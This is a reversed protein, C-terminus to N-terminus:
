IVANIELEEENKETTTLTLGAQEPTGADLSSLLVDKEGGEVSEPKQKGKSAKYKLALTAAMKDVKVPVLVSGTLVTTVGNCVYEMVPGTGGAPRLDLAVKKAPKDQFGLDGELRKSELDGEGLGSTECKHGASECGTLKLTAREGTAGTYEGSTTSAKCTTKVKDVTELTSAGGTGTFARKAFGPVWEDKGSKTESKTTCSSSTYSGHYITKSGEKTSGAAKCRGFEPRVPPDPNDVLIVPDHIQGDAQWATNIHNPTNPEYEGDCLTIFVDELGNASFVDETWSINELPELATGGDIVKYVENPNSGFPVAIEVDICQNPSLGTIEYALEGIVVSGPPKPGSYTTATTNVVPFGEPAIVEVTGPVTGQSQVLTHPEFELKTAACTVNWKRTEVCINEFYPTDSTVPVTSEVGTNYSV